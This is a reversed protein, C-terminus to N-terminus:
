AEAREGSLRPDADASADSAGGHETGAHANHLIASVLDKNGGNLYRVAKQLRLSDDRFHGLGKNCPNCLLGRVEGTEHCHDVMYTGYRHEIWPGGCIACVGGQATELADLQEPTVGYKLRLARRREKDPDYNERYKQLVTERNKAYWNLCEAKRCVTCRWRYGKAANADKVWSKAEGCKPCLPAQSVESMLEDETSQDRELPQLGSPCGM